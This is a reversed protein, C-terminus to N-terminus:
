GPIAGDPITVTLTEGDSSKVTITTTGRTDLAWLTGDEGTEGTRMGDIEVTANVGIDGTVNTLSIEVPGTEHTANVTLSLQETSNTYRESVTMASLDLIQEEKFVDTSSTDIYTTLEGQTHSVDVSFVSANGFSEPRPSRKRNEEAMAWPYLESARDIVESATRLQPQGTGAGPNTTFGERVYRDNVITAIVIGQEGTEVYALRSRATGTIAPQFEVERILGSNTLLTGEYSRLEAELDPPLSYDITSEDMTIVTDATAEIQEATADVRVLTAAFENTTLTGDNYQELAQKQRRQLAETKSDLRAVLDRAAATRERETDANEFRERFSELMYELSLRDSDIRTAAVVDVSARHRRSTQVNEESVRLYNATENVEALAPRPTDTDITQPKEPTDTPGVLGATVGVAVLALLGFTLLATRGASPSSM